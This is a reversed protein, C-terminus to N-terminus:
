KTGNLFISMGLRRHVGGRRLPGCGCRKQGQGQLQAQGASSDCFGIGHAAADLAANWGQLVFFDWLSFHGDFDLGNAVVQIEFHLPGLRVFHEDVGQGGILKDAFVQGLGTAHADLLFGHGIALHALQADGAGVHGQTTNSAVTKFYRGPPTAGAIASEAGKHGIPLQAM